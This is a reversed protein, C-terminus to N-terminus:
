PIAVGIDRKLLAVQLNLANVQNVLNSIAVKSEAMDERVARLETVTTAIVWCVSAVNVAIMFIYGLHKWSFQENDM